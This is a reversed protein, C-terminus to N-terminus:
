VPLDDGLPIDNAPAEAGLAGDDSTPRRDLLRYDEGRIEYALRMVGDKEYAHSRVSGEVEILSGKRVFEALQDTDLSPVVNAWM